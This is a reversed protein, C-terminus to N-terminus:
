RGPPRAPVSGTPTPSWQVCTCALTPPNRDGGRRRRERSTRGHRKQRRVEVVAVGRGDRGVDEDSLSAGLPRDVQPQRRDISVTGYEDVDTVTVAVDHTGGSAEVTVRYVNREALRGGRAASQPDEYDPSERFALVGGDITFLDADPGSLSWAIPDGDQDYAWFTGVPRTGNEAFEISSDATQAYATHCAGGATLM